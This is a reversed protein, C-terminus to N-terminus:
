SKGLAYLNTCCSIERVHMYLLLFYNETSRVTLSTPVTLSFLTHLVGPDPPMSGVPIKCWRRDHEVHQQWQESLQSHSLLLFPTLRTTLLSLTTLFATDIGPPFPLFIHPLM